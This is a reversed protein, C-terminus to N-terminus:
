VSTRCTAPQCPRASPPPPGKSGASSIVWRYCQTVSRSKAQAGCRTCYVIGLALMIVLFVCIPVLLAVLLWRDDRRRRGPAESPTPSVPASTPPPARVGGVVGGGEGGSFDSPDGPRFPPQSPTAAFPTQPWRPDTAVQPDRPAHSPTSLPVSSGTATPPDSVGTTLHPPRPSSPGPELLPPGPELLPSDPDQPPTSLNPPETAPLMRPVVRPDPHIEPSAAGGDQFVSLHDSLALSHDGREQDQEEDSDLERPWGLHDDFHQLVGGGRHSQATALPPPLPAVPSCSIGDLELDYGETCYCEFGGVYNVCMQQCVGPIQCEDTDACRGAEEESPSFGLHCRCLFSGDTNECHHECPAEACEDLDECQHGDSSLEYGSPCQCRYGEEEEEDPVCGFQCPHDRCADEDDDEHDGHAAACSHGDPLLFYGAHCECSYGSGEDLCLQQCGGNDGECWSHQYVSSDRCLPAEKSWAVSGDEKQMCLVSVATGAPGCTVAAVTGFPLYRLAGSVPGFPTTYTVTSAPAGGGGEEDEEALGACMGHFAFRCLYGDVPVVCSGDLWQSDQEGLAVCRSAACSGDSGDSSSRAWNTYSTEQDGTTWTFGRLPRLPFCQRPQRQLGIWFLRQPRGQQPEVGSGGGRAARLLQAVESAEEAHKLTALNGGLERCNRWAELFSRRQFYVAYCGDPGCAAQPEPSVGLLPWALFLLLLLLLRRRRLRGGAAGGRLM